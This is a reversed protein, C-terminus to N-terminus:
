EGARMASHTMVRMVDALFGDSKIHSGQTQHTGTTPPSQVSFVIHGRPLRTQMQLMSEYSSMDRRVALRFGALLSTTAEFSRRCANKWWWNFCPEQILFRAVDLRERFTRLGKGGQSGGGEPPKKKASSGHTGHCLDLSYQLTSLLNQPSRTAAADRM